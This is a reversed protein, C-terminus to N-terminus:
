AFCQPYLVTAWFEPHYQMVGFLEFTLNFHERMVGIGETGQNRFLFFAAARLFRKLYKSTTETFGIWYTPLSM